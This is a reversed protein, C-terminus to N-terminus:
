PLLGKDKLFDRAVRAPDEKRIEVLYNMHVMDEDQIRGELLNLVEELEPHKELVEDRVLTAADYYPFYNKDDELIVLGAEELQGDTTFVM